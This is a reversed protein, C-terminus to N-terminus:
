NPISMHREMRTSHPQLEKAPPGRIEGRMNSNSLSFVVFVFVFFLAGHSASDSPTYDDVFRMSGCLFRVGFFSAFGFTHSRIHTRQKPADSLYICIDPFGVDEDKHVGVGTFIGLGAGKAMISEAMYIKCQNQLHSPNRLIPKSEQYTAKHVVEGSVSRKELFSKAQLAFLGFLLVTLLIACNTPITIGGRSKRSGPDISVM